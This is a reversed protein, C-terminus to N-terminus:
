TKRLTEMSNSYKGTRAALKWSFSPDLNNLRYTKYNTVTRFSGDTPNLGELELARDRHKESTAVLEPPDLSNSSDKPCEKM